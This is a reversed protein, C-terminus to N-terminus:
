QYKIYRTEPYYSFYVKVSSKRVTEANGKYVGDAFRYFLKLDTEADKAYPNKHNMSRLNCCQGNSFYGISMIWANIGEEINVDCGSENIVHLNVVVYVAKPDDDFDDIKGYMEQMGANTYIEMDGPVIKLGYYRIEEGQVYEDEVPEPVIHNMRLYMCLWILIVAAIICIIVFTKHKM